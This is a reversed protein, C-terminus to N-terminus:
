EKKWLIRELAEVSEPAKKCRYCFVPLKNIMDSVLETVKEYQLVNGMDYSCECMIRLFLMRSPIENLVNAEGQELLVVAEIPATFNKSIGSTGCAYIGNAYFRSDRRTVLVRDGNIIEAGREAEWYKAQTTKGTGSPATFLIAKRNYIIYSAHLIFADHNPFVFATESTALLSAINQADAYKTKIFKYIVNGERKVQARLEDDSDTPMVRILYDTENESLFASCNNKDALEFPTEVEFTIDGFTYKKNKM